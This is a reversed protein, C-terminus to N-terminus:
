KTELCKSFYGSIASISALATFVILCILLKGYCPLQIKLKTLPSPATKDKQIKKSCEIENKCSEVTNTSTASRPLIKIIRNIHDLNKLM